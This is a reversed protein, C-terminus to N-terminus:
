RPESFDSILSTKEEGYVMGNKLSKVIESKIEKVDEGADWLHMITKLINMLNSKIHKIKELVPTLKIVFNTYCDIEIENLRHIM